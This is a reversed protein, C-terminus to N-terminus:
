KKRPKLTAFMSLLNDRTTQDKATGFAQIKEDWGGSNSNNVTIQIYFKGNCNQQRWKEPKQLFESNIEEQKCGSMVELGQPYNGFYLGGNFEPQTLTDKIRFYFVTFDPGPAEIVRYNQPLSISFHTDGLPQEVLSDIFTTDKKGTPQCSILLLFCFIFFCSQSIRTM